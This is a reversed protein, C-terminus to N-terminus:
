TGLTRAISEFVAQAEPTFTAGMFVHFARETEHLEVRGGADRVRDRLLRADPLFVDDTGQYIHIPPLDHLEAFLPSLMPGRPDADGAWWRGYEALEACRLMVDRPEVEHADPNGMTLDVWPAFLIVHAPPRLRQERCAIATTLALNGGASDGCLVIRDAREVMGRHIELLMRHADRCRHEPALPYLPVTVTAGTARVLERVIWWHARQLANVFSGGHTYVIHLGTRDSKPALTYVTHGLVLAESVDCVSRLSAPIPAPSPYSRGDYLQRLTEPSRAEGRQMSLLAAALRM